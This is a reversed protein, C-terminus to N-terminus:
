IISALPISCAAYHLVGVGKHPVQLISSVHTVVVDKERSYYISFSRSVARTRLAANFHLLSAARRVKFGVVSQSLLLSAAGGDGVFNPFTTSCSTGAPMVTVPLLSFIPLHLISRCAASAVWTDPPISPMTNESFNCRAAILKSLARVDDRPVPVLDLEPLLSLSLAPRRLRARPRHYCIDHHKTVKEGGFDREFIAVITSCTVKTNPLSSNRTAGKPSRESPKKGEGERREHSTYKELLDM